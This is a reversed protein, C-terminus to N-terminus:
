QCGEANSPAAARDSTPQRRPRPPGTAAPAAEPLILILRHFSERACQQIEVADAYREVAELREVIKGKRDFGALHAGDDTRVSGALGRHHVDDCALSPRVGALDHEVTQVIQSPEVLGLDGPEAKLSVARLAQAAGYYLDISQADLM